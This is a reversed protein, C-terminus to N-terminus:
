AHGIAQILTTAGLAFDGAVFINDLATAVSKGSSLWGDAGVLQPQLGADIWSTEPFQGTALIISDVAINAISEPIAIATFRGDGGKEGQRTRAVQMTNLRGD